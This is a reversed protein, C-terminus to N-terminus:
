RYRSLIRNAVARSRSSVLGTDDHGAVVRAEPGVRVLLRDLWAEASVALVVRTRGGGLDEVGENPYQTAVWAANPELELTVRPDDDAPHYVGLTSRSTDPVEITEDLVTLERIRDVRFVREGAAQRCHGSLYWQGQDSHVRWPEVVRTSSEDRGYSYYDIEVARAGNVAGQLQELVGAPADGLSVEIQDLDSVGVGSALKDLGRALPGDPDAGPVELLSSGAAVLALAQKATLRLPRAFYDAYDIWIRDDEFRVDILQDPTYPYLGVMFIVEFDALLSDRDLAFREAVADISVGPNDAVWPVVALLRRLRDGATLQAM